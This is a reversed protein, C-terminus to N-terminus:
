IQIMQCDLDVPSLDLERKRGSKLLIRHISSKHFPNGARNLHGEETLTKAILGYSYGMDFYDQMKKLVEQEEDHPLLNGPKMEVLGNRKIPILNDMDIYFGYPPERSVRLNNEAKHRLKAKTRICINEREKEAFAAFIALSTKDSYPDNLSKVKGKKKEIEEVITLLDIITRSLRDLKFVVVVDDKGIKSLMLELNPRKKRDKGSMYPDSFHLYKDAGQTKIYDICQQVQFASDQKDTSVRSYIIYKM